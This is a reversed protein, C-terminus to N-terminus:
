RQAYWFNTKAIKTLFHNACSHHGANRQYDHAFLQMYLFIPRFLVKIASRNAKFSCWGIIRSCNVFCNSLKYMVIYLSNVEAATFFAVNFIHM